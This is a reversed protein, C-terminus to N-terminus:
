EGDKKERKVISGAIPDVQYDRPNMRHRRMVLMAYTNIDALLRPDGQGTKPNKTLNYLMLKSHLNARESKSIKPTPTIFGGSHRITSITAEAQVM